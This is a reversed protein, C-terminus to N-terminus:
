GVQLTGSMAGDSGAPSSSMGSESTFVVVGTGPFQFAFTVTSPEGVSDAPPIPVNLVFEGAIITFTHSVFGPALSTLTAMGMMGGRGVSTARITGGVTGAVACFDRSTPHAVPDYNVITVDIVVDAPSRLSSNTYAAMGTGDVEISLRLDAAPRASVSNSWVLAAASAVSVILFAMGLAGWVRVAAHM